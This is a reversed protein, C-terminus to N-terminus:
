FTNDYNNILNKYSIELPHINNNKKFLNQINQLDKQNDVTLSIQHNDKVDYINHMKFKNKLRYLHQTVHEKEENNSLLATKKFFDSNIWEVSVGYPFTRTLINTVVDYGETIINYGKRILGKDVLPCDGNVRCFFDFKYVNLLETTRLILDTEDGRFVSVNLKSGLEEIKNDIEKNTTAIVIKFGDENELPKLRKVILELLKYAGIRKLAKGPLRSSGMRSYIIIGSNIIQNSM